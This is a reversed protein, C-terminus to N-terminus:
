CHYQLIITILIIQISEILDTKGYDSINMFANRNVKFVNPNNKEILFFNDISTVRSLAVCMQGENFSKQKELEFSAFASILYM